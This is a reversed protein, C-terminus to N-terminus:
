SRGLQFSSVASAHVDLGGNDPGIFGHGKEPVYSKVTGTKTGMPMVVGESGRPKGIRSRTARAGAFTVHKARAGDTLFDPKTFQKV